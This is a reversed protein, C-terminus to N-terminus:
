SILGCRRTSMWGDIEAFDVLFDRLKVERLPYITKLLSENQWQFHLPTTMKGWPAPVIPPSPLYKIRNSSVDRSREASRNEIIGM